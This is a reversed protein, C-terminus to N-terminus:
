LFRSIIRVLQIPLQWLNSMDLFREQGYIDSITDKDQGIAAALFLIGKRSYESIIQKMDDIAAKGTYDPMAKPQGDSISILLKTTQPMKVLKEALIRLAMGDRNNSHSQIAMLAYKDNLGPEEWDIYSYMSMREIPSRDATDGYILVPIKCATCFEYVAIAAQKAAELRGLAKMSASQDIRLAVALSPEEEPARKKSFYRHDQFSVKEAHFKTGYVCNKSFDVSVEHELLPTTKRILERIVPMLESVMKHYERHHALTAEPRHVIMAVKEHSTGKVLERAQQNLRKRFAKKEEALAAQEEPTLEHCIPAGEESNDSERSKISSEPVYASIGESDPSKKLAAAPQIDTSLPVKLMDNKGETPIEM